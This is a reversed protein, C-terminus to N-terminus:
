HCLPPLAGCAGCFLEATAFNTLQPFRGIALKRHAPIVYRAAPRISSAAVGTFSQCKGSPQPIPAILGVGEAEGPIDSGCAAGCVGFAVIALGERDGLETAHPRADRVAM